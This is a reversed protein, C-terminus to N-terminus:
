FSLGMGVRFGNLQLGSVGALTGSASYYASQIRLAKGDDHSSLRMEMGARVEYGFLLSQTNEDVGTPPTGLKMLSWGLLGSAGLYPTIAGPTPLFFNLGGMFEGGYLTFSSNGGSLSVTGSAMNLNAQYVPRFHQKAKEASFQLSYGMTGSLSQNDKGSYVHVMGAVMSQYDLAYAPASGALALAVMWFIQRSLIKSM